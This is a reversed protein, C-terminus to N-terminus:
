PKWKLFSGMWKLSRICAQNMTYNNKHVGANEFCLGQSNGLKVVYDENEIISQDHTVIIVTKGEDNLEHLVKM